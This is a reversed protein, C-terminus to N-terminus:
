KSPTYELGEPRDRLPENNYDGPLGRHVALAQKYKKVRNGVANYTPKKMRSGVKANAKYTAEPDAEGEFEWMKLFAKKEVATTITTLTAEDLTQGNRINKEEEDM